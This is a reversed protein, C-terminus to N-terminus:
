GFIIGHIGNLISKYDSSEILFSLGNKAYESRFIKRAEMLALVDGLWPSYELGTGVIDIRVLSEFIRAEQSFFEGIHAKLIAYDAASVAIEDFFKGSDDFSCHKIFSVNIRSEACTKLFNSFIDTESIASILTLDTKYTLGVVYNEGCPLNGVVRTKRASPAGFSSAISFDIGMMKAFVVSRDQMVKNDFFALRLLADHSIMEILTPRDIVRPDGSFVGDVDTYIECADASFRHALALATLDSGGRGITTPNMHEDIGQFGPVVVVKGAKLCEEIDGGSINRIRANGFTSCTIIGAQYANRFVTPICMDNLIISLLAATECEGTCLLADLCAPDPNASLSKGLSLLSNTVGARASIVIILENKQDAPIRIRDAVAKIREISAVSTGGYKQVVRVM